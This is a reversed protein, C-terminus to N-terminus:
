AVLEGDQAALDFLRLRGVIVPGKEARDCSRERAWSTDSPDDGGVGQETPVSAADGSVPGLGRSWRAPRGGGGLDSSQHDAECGLVGGPAVAADVAFQGSEAM